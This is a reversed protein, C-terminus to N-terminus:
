GQASATVTQETARTANAASSVADTVSALLKLGTAIAAGTRSAEHGSGTATAMRKNANELATRAEQPKAQAAQLSGFIGELINKAVDPTMQQAKSAENEVRTFDRALEEVNGAAAKAPGVATAADSGAKTLGADGIAHAKKSIKGAGDDLNEKLARFAPALSGLLGVLKVVTM